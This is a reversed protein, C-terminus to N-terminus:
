VSIRGRTQLITNQYM